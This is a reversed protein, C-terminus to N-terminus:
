RTYSAIVAAAPAHREIESFLALKVDIKEPAAEIVMDAEHLAEALNTTPALRRMAADADPASVKGLEVGKKVIHEIAARGKAVAADSVDYMRTEYGGVIAAHAIGHGMTGAGLVTIRTIPM